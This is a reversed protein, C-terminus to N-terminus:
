AFYQVSCPGDFVVRRTDGPFFLWVIRARSVVFSALYYSDDIDGRALNATLDQLNDSSIRFFYSRLEHQVREIKYARMM